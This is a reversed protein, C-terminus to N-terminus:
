RPFERVQIDDPWESIDGGHRNTLNLKKSLWTGTQKVFVNVGKEKAQSIL